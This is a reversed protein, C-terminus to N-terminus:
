GLEDAWGPKVTGDPEYLYRYYLFLTVINLCLFLSACFDRGSGILLQWINIGRSGNAKFARCLVVCRYSVLGTLYLPPILAVTTMLAMVTAVVTDTEIGLAVILFFTLLHALYFCGKSIEEPSEVLGEGDHSLGILAAAAVTSMHGSGPTPRWTPDLGMTLCSLIPVLGFVAFHILCLSLVPAMLSFNWNVSLDVDSTTQRDERGAQIIKMFHNYFLAQSMIWIWLFLQCLIALRLSINEWVSTAEGDKALISSNAQTPPLPRGKEKTAICRLAEPIAFAVLILGALIQSAPINQCGLIKIMQPLTGLVFAIISFGWLKDQAFAQSAGTQIANTTRDPGLTVRPFRRLWVHRAANTPSVGHCIFCLITGLSNVTDALCVIPSSRLAIRLTTSQGQDDNLGPINGVDQLAVNFAAALLSWFISQWSVLNEPYDAAVDLM